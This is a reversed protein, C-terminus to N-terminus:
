LGLAISSLSMSCRSFVKFACSILHTATWPYSVLPCHSGALERSPREWLDRLTVRSSCAMNTLQHSTRPRVWVGQTCHPQQTSTCTATRSSAPLLTDETGAQNVATQGKGHALYCKRWSTKGPERLKPWHEGEANARFHLHWRTNYGETRPITGAM